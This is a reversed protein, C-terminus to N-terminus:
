LEKVVKLKKKQEDLQDHIIGLEIAEAIGFHFSTKGLFHKKWKTKNIKARTRLIDRMRDQYWDYNERAEQAEARSSSSGGYMVEHYFFRTSPAALRLDAGMLIPLGASSCRGYTIGIVPMPLCRMFDYLAFGMAADGGLTNVYVRIPTDPDDQNLHLMQSIVTNGVAETIDGCILVSRNEPGHFAAVGPAWVTGTNGMQAMLSAFAAEEEPTPEQEEPTEELMISAFKM